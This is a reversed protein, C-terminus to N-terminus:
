EWVFFLVLLAFGISHMSGYSTWFLQGFMGTKSSKHSQPVPLAFHLSFPLSVVFIEAVFTCFNRCHFYVVKEPLKLAGSFIDYSEHLRLCYRSFEQLVGGVFQNKQFSFIRM